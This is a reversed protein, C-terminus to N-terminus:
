GHKNAVRVHIRGGVPCAEIVEELQILANDRRLKGTSVKRIMTVRNDTWM